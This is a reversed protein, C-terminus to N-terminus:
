FFYSGRFYMHNYKYADQKNYGMNADEWIFEIQAHKIFHYRLSAYVGSISNDARNDFIEVSQTGIFTEVFGSFRTSINHSLQIALKSTTSKDPDFYGGDTQQDFSQYEQKLGLNLRPKGTYVTYFGALKLDLSRNNDNYQTNRAQLQVNWRDFILHRLQL